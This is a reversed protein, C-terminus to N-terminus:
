KGELLLSARGVIAATPFRADIADKLFTIEEAVLDLDVKATNVRLALNFAKERLERSKLYPSQDQLSRMILTRLTLKADKIMMPRDAADLLVTNLKVKM